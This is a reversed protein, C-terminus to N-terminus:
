SAGVGGNFRIPDDAYMDKIKGEPAPAPPQAVLAIPKSPDNIFEFSKVQREGKALRALETPQDLAAKATDVNHKCADVASGEGGNWYEEISELADRLRKMEAEIADRLAKAIKEAQDKCITPKDADDLFAKIKIQKVLDLVSNM